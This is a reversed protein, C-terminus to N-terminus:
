LGVAGLLPALPVPREFWWELQHRAQHALMARGNGTRLGEAARARRWPSEEPVYALEVAVADSDYAAALAPLGDDAGPPVASVVLAVHDIEAPAVVVAPYRAGLAAVPAFRRALVAVVGAGAEAVADIVARAAGGAGRVVVTRGRVDLAFQAALADLFGAGDTTRGHAVHERVLVSNVSHLRRARDDVEGCFELVAEKLPMTVSLGDLRGLLPGLEDAHDRDVDYVHSEGDLGLADLAARHMAPTLSHAIPHGVVGLRWRM